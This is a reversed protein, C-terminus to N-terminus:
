FSQMGLEKGPFSGNANNTRSFPYLEKKLNKSIGAEIESQKIHSKAPDFNNWISNARFHSQLTFIIDM